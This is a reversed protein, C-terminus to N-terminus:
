TALERGRHHGHRPEVRGGVAQGPGDPGEGHDTARRGGARRRGQGEGRADAASRGVQREQVEEGRRDGWHRHPTRNYPSGPQTYFSNTASPPLGVVPNGIGYGRFRVQSQNHMHNFNVLTEQHGVISDLSAPVPTAIQFIESNRPPNTVCLERWM